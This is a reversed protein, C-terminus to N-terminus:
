RVSVNWPGLTPTLVSRTLPMPSGAALKHLARDYIAICHRETLRSSYLIGDVTPMNAHVFESFYQGDTHASYRIVDAPVGCRVANGGTLDLLEVTIGLSTSINVADHGAYDSPMLVRSPNLDFRERILTELVGTALDEALYVIGFLLHRGQGVSLPSFRSPGGSFGLLAHSYRAAM